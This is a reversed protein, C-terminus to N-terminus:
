AALLNTGAGVAGVAAAIVLPARLRRWHAIGVVTLIGIVKVLVVTEWPLGAMLPNGEAAPGVWAVWTALDLTQALLALAIM